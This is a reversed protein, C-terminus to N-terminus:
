PLRPPLIPVAPPWLYPSGVAAIIISPAPSAPGKGKPAVGICLGADGAISSRRQPRRRRPQEVWTQRDPQIWWRELQQLGRAHPPMAVRDSPIEHPEEVAPRLGFSTEAESGQCIGTLGVVALLSHLLRHRGRGQRSKSEAKGDQQRRCRRAQGVADNRAVSDL